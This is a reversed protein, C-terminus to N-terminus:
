SVSKESAETESASEELEKKEIEELAAELEALKVEAEDEVNFWRELSEQLEQANHEQVCLNDDFLGPLQSTSNTSIVSAPLRASALKNMLAAVTLEDDEDEDENDSVAAAAPKSEVEADSPANSKTNKKEGLCM